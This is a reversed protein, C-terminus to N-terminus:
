RSHNQCQRLITQLTVAINQRAIDPRLCQEMPMDAPNISEVASFGAQLLSERDRVQGAILACPVNHRVAHQLVRYPLKGSLTQSDASGEGTVILHSARIHKDFDLLEFLLEAGPQIRARAFAILGFALGGAAGAGAVNAYDSGTRREVLHAWHQLHRELLAVQEPTAGKQPAYNRATGRPGCLPIDVDCALVVEVPHNNLLFDTDDIYDNTVKLGLAELAGRGGDTTASGGLGVIVRSCGRSVADAILQGVGYTNARIPDREGPTNLTLGAAQAMEIIATTRDPTIAYRAIVTQGLPNAVELCVFTANLAAAFAELMGEGGDSVPICTLHADPIIGRIGGAAASEAEASSLCGKFSDIALLINM